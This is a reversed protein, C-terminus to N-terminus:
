YALVVHTTSGHTWAHGGAARRCALTEWEPPDMLLKALKQTETRWGVNDQGYMRDDTTCAHKSAVLQDLVTRRGPGPCFIKKYFLRDVNYKSSRTQQELRRRNGINLYYIVHSDILIQKMM